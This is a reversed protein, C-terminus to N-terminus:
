FLTFDHVDNSTNVKFGSWLVLLMWKLKKSTNSLRMLHCPFVHRLTPQHTQCYISKSFMFLDFSNIPVLHFQFGVLFRIREM